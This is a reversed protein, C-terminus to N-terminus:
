RREHYGETHHCRELNEGCQVREWDPEPGHVSFQGVVVHVYYEGGFHEETGDLNRMTCPESRTGHQGPKLESVTDHAFVTICGSGPALVYVWEIFLPDSNQETMQDSVGEGHEHHKAEPDRYGTRDLNGQVEPCFPSDPGLDLIVGSISHPQGAKKGCYECVGGALYERWDGYSLLEKAFQKLDKGQLHRWLEKGLERPYSDWHNYVGQWGDGRAIAVCGRTGM